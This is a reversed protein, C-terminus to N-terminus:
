DYTPSVFSNEILEDLFVFSTTPRTTTPPSPLPRTSISPLPPPPRTTSSHKQPSPGIRLPKLVAIPKFSPKSCSCTCPICKCQRLNNRFESSTVKKNHFTHIFNNTSCLHNGDFIHRFLFISQRTHLICKCDCRHLHSRDYSSLTPIEPTSM